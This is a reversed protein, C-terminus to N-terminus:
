EILMRLADYQEPTDIDMVVARDNVPVRRCADPHSRWFGRLGDRGDYELIVDRLAPPLLVPHGGHGDYEPFVAQASYRAAEDLLCEVTAPAVAPHDVPHLLVAADNSVSTVARLGRLVSDFMPLGCEGRVTTFTREGLASQISEADHDLVVFMDDCFLALLDYSAEVVTGTSAAHILPWPLLQKSEGMRRSRGAALLVGVCAPQPCNDSCTM